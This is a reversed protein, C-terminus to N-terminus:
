HYLWVVRRFEISIFLYPTVQFCVLKFVRTVWCGIFEFFFNGCDHFCEFLLRVEDLVKKVVWVEAVIVLCPEFTYPLIDWDPQANAKFALSLLLLLAFPYGHLTKSKM